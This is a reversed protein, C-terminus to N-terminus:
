SIGVISCARLKAGHRIAAYVDENPAYCVTGDAAMLQHDSLDLAKLVAWATVGPELSVHCLGRGPLAEVILVMIAKLAPADTVPKPIMTQNM